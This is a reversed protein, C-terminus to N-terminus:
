LAFYTVYIMMSSCVVFVNAASRLPPSNPLLEFGAVCLVAYVPTLGLTYSAKAQQEVGCLLTNVWFESYLFLAIAVVGLSCLGLTLWRRWPSDTEESRKPKRREIPM